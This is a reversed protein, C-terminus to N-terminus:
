CNKWNTNKLVMVACDCPKGDASWSNGSFKHQMRATCGSLELADAM